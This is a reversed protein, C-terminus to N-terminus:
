RSHGIDELKEPETVLPDKGGYVIRGDRYVLAASPFEATPPFFGEPAIPIVHLVTAGKGDYVLLIGAGADVAPTVQFGYCLLDMQVLLRALRAFTQPNRARAMFDAVMVGGARALRKCSDSCYDRPRGLSTPMAAGCEGCTRGAPAPEEPERNDEPIASVPPATLDTPAHEALWYRTVPRGLAFARKREVRAVIVFEDILTDLIPTIRDTSARTAQLLETKTKGASAADQLELLIRARLADPNNRQAAMSITKM